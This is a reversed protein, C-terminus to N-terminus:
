IKYRSRAMQLYLSLKEKINYKMNYSYTFETHLSNINEENVSLLTLTHVVENFTTADKVNESCM